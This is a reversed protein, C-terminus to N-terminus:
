YIDSKNFDVFQLVQSTQNNEVTEDPADIFHMIAWAILIFFFLIWFQGSEEELPFEEGCHPCFPATRSISKKCVACKGLKKM